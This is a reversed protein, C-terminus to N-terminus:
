ALIEVSQALVELQYPRKQGRLRVSQALDSTARALECLGSFRRRLSSELQFLPPKAIRQTAFSM